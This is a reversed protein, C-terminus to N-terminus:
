DYALVPVQGSNIETVESMANKVILMRTLMRMYFLSMPLQLNERYIKQNNQLMLLLSLFPIAKKVEADVLFSKATSM